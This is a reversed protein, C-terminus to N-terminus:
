IRMLLDILAEAGVLIVGAVLGWLKRDISDIRRELMEVKYLV